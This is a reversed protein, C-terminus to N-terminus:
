GSGTLHIMWQLASFKHQLIGEWNSQPVPVTAHNCLCKVAHATAATPM